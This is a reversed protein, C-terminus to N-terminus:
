ETTLVPKEDIGRSSRAFDGQVRLLGHYQQWWWDLENLLGDGRDPNHLCRTGPKKRQHGEVLLTVLSLVSPRKWSISVLSQIM